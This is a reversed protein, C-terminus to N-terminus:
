MGSRTRRPRYETLRDRRGAGGALVPAAERRLRHDGERAEATQSTVTLMAHLYPLAESAASDIVAYFSDRGLKTVGPPKSALVAALDAVAADLDEDPVVRTVFGIRDAEEAGVVRSTLMLELAKKPPMSRLLSVTVMYPWLGM